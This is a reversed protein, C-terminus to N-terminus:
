EYMLEKASEITEKIKKQADLREQRAMDCGLADIARECEAILDIVMSKYRIAGQNMKSRAGKIDLACADMLSAAKNLGLLSLAHSIETASEYASTSMEYSDYFNKM